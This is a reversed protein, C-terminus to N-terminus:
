TIGKTQWAKKKYKRMTWTNTRNKHGEKKEKLIKQEVTGYGIDIIIKNLQEM